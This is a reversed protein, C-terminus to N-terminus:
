RRTRGPACARHHSQRPRRHGAAFNEAVDCALREIAPSPDSGPTLVSYKWGQEIMAAAAGAALLSSKGSGSAGVLVIPNEPSQEALDVVRGAPDERGFFWPADAVIYRELGQFPAPASAPRPGPLRRVRHLAEVWVQREIEDEVGCVLLIREIVATGALNPLHRGSVDGGITSSSM